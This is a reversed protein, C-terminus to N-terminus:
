TSKCEKALALCKKADLYGTKMSADGRIVRIWPTGQTGAYYDFDTDLEVKYKELLDALERLFEEM